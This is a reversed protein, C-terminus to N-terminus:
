RLLMLETARLRRQRTDRPTAAPDIGSADPIALSARAVTVPIVNREM